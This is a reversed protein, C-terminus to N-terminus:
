WSTLCTHNKEGEECTIQPEPVLEKNETCAAADCPFALLIYVVEEDASPTTKWESDTLRIIMVEHM